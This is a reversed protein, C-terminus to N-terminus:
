CVEKDALRTHEVSAQIDQHGAELEGISPNQTHAWVRSELLIKLIKMALQKVKRKKGRRSGRQCVSNM